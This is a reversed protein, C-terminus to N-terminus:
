QIFGSVLEVRGLFPVTCAACLGPEESPQVDTPGTVDAVAPLLGVVALIGVAAAAVLTITRARNM